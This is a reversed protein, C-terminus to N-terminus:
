QRVFGNKELFFFFVGETFNEVPELRCSATLSKGHVGLIIREEELRRLARAWVPEAEGRREFHRQEALAFSEPLTGQTEGLHPPMLVPVLFHVCSRHHVGQTTLSEQSPLLLPAPAPPASSFSCPRHHLPAHAGAAELFPNALCPTKNKVSSAQGFLAKGSCLPGQLAAPLATAKCRRAQLGLKCGGRSWLHFEPGPKRRGPSCPIGPPTFAKKEGEKESKHHFLKERALSHNGFCEILLGLGVFGLCVAGEPHAYDTRFVFM